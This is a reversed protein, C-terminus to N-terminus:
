RMIVREFGSPKYFKPNLEIAKDLLKLKAEDESTTRAREYYDAYQFKLMAPLATAFLLLLDASTSFAIGAIM